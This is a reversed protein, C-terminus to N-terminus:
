RRRAILIQHVRARARQEGPASLPFRVPDEHGQMLCSKLLSSQECHQPPGRQCYGIVACRLRMHAVGDVGGGAIPFRMVAEAYHEPHLVRM